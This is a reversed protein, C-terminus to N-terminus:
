PIVNKEERITLLVEFPQMLFYVVLFALLVFFSLDKEVCCAVIVAVILPIMMRCFMGIIIGIFPNQLHYRAIKISIITLGGSLWCTFVAIEILVLGKSGKLYWAPYASIGSILLAYLSLLGFASTNAFLHSILSSLKKLRNVM